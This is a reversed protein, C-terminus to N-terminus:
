HGDVRGDSEGPRYLGRAAAWVGIQTRTTFSLRKM